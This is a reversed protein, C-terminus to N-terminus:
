LLAELNKWVAGIPEGRMLADLVMEAVNSMHIIRCSQCSWAGDM